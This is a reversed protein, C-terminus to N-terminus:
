ATQFIRGAFTKIVEIYADAARTRGDSFTLVSERADQAYEVAVNNPITGLYYPALNGERISDRIENHGNIKVSFMVVLIGALSPSEQRWQKRLLNVRNIIKILGNSDLPAPAVPIVYHDSAIISMETLPSFKPCTDIIVIRYEDDIQSLLTDLAYIGGPMDKISSEVEDLRQQAPLVHLNQHWNSVRIAEHIDPFEYTENYSRLLSYLTKDAGTFEQDLTILSAHAQSDTDVLLVKGEIGSNEMMLTMGYAFEIATTSKGVGGKNNTLVVKIAM